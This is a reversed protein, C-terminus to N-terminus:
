NGCCSVYESKVQKSFFKGKPDITVSREVKQISNDDPIHLEKKKITVPKDKKNEFLRSISIM